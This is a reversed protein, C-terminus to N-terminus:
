RSFHPDFSGAEPVLQTVRLRQGLLHELLMGQLNQM